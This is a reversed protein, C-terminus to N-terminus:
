LDYKEATKDSYMKVVVSIVERLLGMVHVFGVSRGGTIQMLAGEGLIEDIFEKVETMLRIQANM